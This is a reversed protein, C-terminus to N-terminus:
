NKVKYSISKCSLYKNYSFYSSRRGEKDTFILCRPGKGQMTIVNSVDVNDRKLRELYKKDEEEDGIISSLIVKLGLSSLYMAVNGATGGYSRVYDRIVVEDKANPLRKVYFIDDIVLPGHVLIKIM